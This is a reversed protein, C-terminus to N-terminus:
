SEKSDKSKGYLRISGPDNEYTNAFWSVTKELGERFPMYKHDSLRMFRSNDTNKRFIGNPKGTDFVIREREVEMIEAIM